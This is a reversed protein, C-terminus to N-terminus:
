AHDFAIQTDGKFFYRQSDKEM